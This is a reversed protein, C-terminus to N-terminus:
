LSKTKSKKSNGDKAKMKVFYMIAGGVAVVGILVAGAIMLNTMTKERNKQAKAVELRAMQEAVKLAAEEKKLTEQEAKQTAVVKQQEVQVAKDEATKVELEKRKRKQKKKKKLNDIWRKVFFHDYDEGYIVQELYPDAHIM